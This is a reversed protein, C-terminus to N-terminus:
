TNHCSQMLNASLCQQVLGPSVVLLSTVIGTLAGAAVLKTAWGWGVATFAAAYPANVDIETYPQMGAAPGPRATNQGHSGAQGATLLGSDHFPLGGKM